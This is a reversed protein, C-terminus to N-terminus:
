HFRLARSLVPELPGCITSKNNTNYQMESLWDPDGLYQDKGSVENEELARRLFNAPEQFPISLIFSLCFSLFFSLFFFPLPFLLWFLIFWLLVQFRNQLWAM